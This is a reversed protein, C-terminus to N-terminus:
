RKKLKFLPGASVSQVNQMRRNLRHEKDDGVYKSRTHSLQCDDENSKKFYKKIIIKNILSEIVACQLLQM